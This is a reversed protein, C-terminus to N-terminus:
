VTKEFVEKNNKTDKSPLNVQTPVNIIYEVIFVIACLPDEFVENLVISNRMVLRNVQSKPM